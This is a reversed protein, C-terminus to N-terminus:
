LASVRRAISMTNRSHGHRELFFVLPARSWAPLKLPRSPTSWTCITRGPKQGIRGLIPARTPPCTASPGTPHRGTQTTRLSRPKTTTASMASSRASSSSRAALKWLFCGIITVAKTGCTALCRAIPSTSLQRRREREVSDAELVDLTIVGNFHGTLAQAVFDFTLPPANRPGGDLPLGFRLLSYALRKKAQEVERWADLRGAEALNPITRNCACAKCLTVPENGPVLWNCAAHEANDCFRVETAANKGNKIGIKRYLATDSATPELAMMTLADADFGLRHGCSLCTDNPFYVRANCSSCSFNKM